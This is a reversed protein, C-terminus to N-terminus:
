LEDINFFDTESCAEIGVRLGTVFGKRFYLSEMVGLLGGMCLYLEDLLEGQEENLTSELREYVAGYEEERKQYEANKPARETRGAENYFIKEIMSKM